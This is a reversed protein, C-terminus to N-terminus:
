KKRRNDVMFNVDTSLRVAYIDMNYKKKLMQGRQKAYLYLRELDKITVNVIAFETNSSKLKKNKSLVYIGNITHTRVKKTKKM